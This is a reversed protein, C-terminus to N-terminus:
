HILRVAKFMTNVYLSCTFDLREFQAPAPDTDPPRAM